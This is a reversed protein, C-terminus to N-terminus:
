MDPNDSLKLTSPQTTLTLLWDLSIKNLFCWGYLFASCLLRGISVLNKTSLWSSKVVRYMNNKGLELLCITKKAWALKASLKFIKLIINNDIYPTGILTIPEDYPFHMKIVPKKKKRERKGLVTSGFCASVAPVIIAKKSIIPKAKPAPNEKTMVMFRYILLQSKKGLSLLTVEGTSTHDPAWSRISTM